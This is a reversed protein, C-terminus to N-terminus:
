EGLDPYERRKPVSALNITLSQSFGDLGPFLTARSVNGDHLEELIGKIAAAPVTLKMLYDDRDFGAMASLNEEFPRRVDGPCVFVGKQITLRENLM